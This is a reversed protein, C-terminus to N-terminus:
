SWIDNRIRFRYVAHCCRGAARRLSGLTSVSAHRSTVFIFPVMVAAYLVLAPAQSWPFCHGDMAEESQGAAESWAELSEPMFSHEAAIIEFLASGPYPRYPYPGGLYVNHSLADLRDIEKLTQLMDFRSEGPLGIMFSLVLTLAHGRCMTVTRRIQDVSIDKKLLRLTRDSGSEAGVGLVILGVGTMEELLRDDIYHDGFDSARASAQWFFRMDRRRIERLFEKLRVRDAFFDDDELVFTQINYRNMLFSIDDLIAAANRRRHRRRTWPNAPNICFSCRYPCGRGAHIFTANGVALPTYASLLAIQGPSLLEYAPRPLADMDPPERPPTRRIVGDGDRFAIGAIGTFGADGDIAAALEVITEDGEGIVVVDCYRSDATQEPFLSPHVGGWVIPLQPAIERLRAAIKLGDPIQTSMATIGAFLAGPALRDIAEMYSDDSPADVLEVRYGAEQLVAGICLLSMSLMPRDRHRPDIIYHPRILVVHRKDSM